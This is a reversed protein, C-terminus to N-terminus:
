GADPKAVVAAKFGEAELVSLREQGLRAAPTGPNAAITEAFAQAAEQKKGLRVLVRARHFAGMGALFGASEERAMREYADLAQPLEGKAERAHGLGDLAALRLNEGAPAARLYDEFHGIAADLKGLRVEMSALPLTATLAGRSRPFSSRVSELAAAAAQDREQETKFPPEDSPTGPPLDAQLPRSLVALGQSLAERAKAERKDSMMKGAAIGFGALLLVAVVGVVVGPRSSIWARAEAGARQFADPARLERRTM